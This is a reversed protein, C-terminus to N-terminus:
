STRYRIFLIPQGFKGIRMEREVTGALPAKTLTKAIANILSQGSLKGFAPSQDLDGVLQAITVWNNTLLAHVASHRCDLDGIQQRRAATVAREEARRQRQRESRHPRTTEGRRARTQDLTEGAPTIRKLFQAAPLTIFKGNRRYTRAPRGLANRGVFEDEEITFDLLEGIVYTEYLENLNVGHVRLMQRHKLVHEGRERQRAQRLRFLIHCDNAQILRCMAQAAADRPITSRAPRISGPSTPLSPSPPPQPRGSGDIHSRPLPPPPADESITAPPPPPGEIIVLPATAAVRDKERDIGMRLLKPRLQEVVEPTVPATGPLAVIIQQIAHSAHAAFVMGDSATAPQETAIPPAAPESARQPLPDFLRRYVDQHKAWFDDVAGPDHMALLAYRKVVLLVDPPFDGDNVHPILDAVKNPDSCFFACWRDTGRHRALFEAVERPPRKGFTVRRELAWRLGRLEADLEAEESLADRLIEPYGKADRRRWRLWQGCFKERIELLLQEDAVQEFLRRYGAKFHDLRRKRETPPIRRLYMIALDIESRLADIEVQPVATGNAYGSADGDIVVNPEPESINSADAPGVGNQTGM